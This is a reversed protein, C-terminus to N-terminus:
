FTCQDEQRHEIGTYVISRFICLVWQLALLLSFHFLLATIIDTLRINQLLWYLQIPLTVLTSLFLFFLLLATFWDKLNHLVQQVNAVSAFYLCDSKEFVSLVTNLNVESFPHELQTYSLSWCCVHISWEMIMWLFM